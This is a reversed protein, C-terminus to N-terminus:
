GTKPPLIPRPGEFLQVQVSHGGPRNDTQATGEIPQGEQLRQRARETQEHLERSYPLAHARPPGIVEGDDSRPSLWLYIAGAPRDREPELVLAAHLQFQAPPPAETPWGLLGEIALFAIVFFGSTLAIAVAKITWHWASRLNLSLLLVALVAYSAVLGLVAATL